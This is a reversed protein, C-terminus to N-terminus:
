GYFYVGWFHRVKPTFIMENLVKGDPYFQLTGEFAVGEYVTENHYSMGYFCIRM